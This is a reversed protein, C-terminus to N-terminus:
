TNEISSVALLDRRKDRMIWRRFEKPFNFGCQLVRLRKESLCYGREFDGKHFGHFQNWKVTTVESGGKSYTCLQLQRSM